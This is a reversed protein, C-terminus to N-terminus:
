RGPGPVGDRAQDVAAVAPGASEVAGPSAPTRPHSRGPATQKAQAIKSGLESAEAESLSARLGPWVQDEEYAIHDRSAAIFEGVLGEFEPDGADAQDLSYRVEAGEQEQGVAQDALHGGGPVRDRVAPWLYMQEAAEHRSEEMVLTQVKEKREALQGPSAGALATPGSELEALMQRVQEHDRTLVEFVSAM